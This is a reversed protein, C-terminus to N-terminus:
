FGGRCRRGRAFAWDYLEQDLANRADVEAEAERPIESHGGARRPRAEPARRAAARPRPAPTAGQEALAETFLVVKFGALPSKM